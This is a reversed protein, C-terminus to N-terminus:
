YDEIEFLGADTEVKEEEKEKEEEEIFKKLTESLETIIIDDSLDDSVVLEKFSSGQPSTWGGKFFKEAIRTCKKSDAIIYHSKKWNETSENSGANRIADSYAVLRFYNWFVKKDKLSRVKTTDDRTEINFANKKKNSLNTLLVSNNVARALGMLFFDAIRNRFSTGKIKEKKLTNHISRTEEELDVGGFNTYNPKIKETIKVM